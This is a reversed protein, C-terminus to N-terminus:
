PIIVNPCGFTIRVNEIKGSKVMECIEGNLQISKMGAGYTWGKVPDNPVRMTGIDVAVDKPSPPQKSLVFLCNSVRVTIQNLIDVLEQRNQVPYHKTEGMRPERGAEAMQDLQRMANASQRAIGIVFTHFGSEAAERISALSSPLSDMNNFRCTPEGDTALVIYKPNKTERTKLYALARSVAAATPTGGQDENPRTMEIFGNVNGSNMGAIPVEVGESVNCAATTPFTKLGWSVLSDTKSITETVAPIMEEWRSNASGPVDKMRMSGSRDLVLMLEPPLRELEFKEFGCHKEDGVNGPGSTNPGGPGADAFVVSFGSGGRGSNSGNSGSGNSGSGSGGSGSGPGSGTGDGTGPGKIDPDSCGGALAAACLAGLFPRAFRKM